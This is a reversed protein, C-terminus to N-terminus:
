GTRERRVSGKSQKHPYSHGTRAYLDMIVARMDANDEEVAMIREQLEHLESRVAALQVAGGSDEAVEPQTPDRVYFGRTPESIVLNEEKLVRLANQITQGAVEYEGSLVKISPLPRGPAFEGGGIRSRLDDAIQQFPRRHRDSPDVKRV